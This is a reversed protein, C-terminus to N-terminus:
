TTSEVVRNLCERCVTIINGFIPILLAIQTIRSLHGDRSEFVTLVIDFGGLYNRSNFIQNM